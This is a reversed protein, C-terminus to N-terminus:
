EWQVSACTSRNHLPQYHHLMLLFLLFGWWLALKWPMRCSGAHGGTDSYHSHHPRGKDRWGRAMDWETCHGGVYSHVLCGVGTRRTTGACVWPGIPLLGLLKIMFLKGAGNSFVNMGEAKAASSFYHLPALRPPLNPPFGPIVESFLRGYLERIRRWKLKQPRESDGSYDDYMM